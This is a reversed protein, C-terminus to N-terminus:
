FLRRQAFITEESVEEALTVKDTMEVEKWCDNTSADSSKRVAFAFGNLGTTIAHYSQRPIANLFLIGLFCVFTM